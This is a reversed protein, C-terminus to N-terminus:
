TAPPTGTSRRYRSGAVARFGPAMRSPVPSPSTKRAPRMGIRFVSRLHDARVLFARLFWSQEDTEFPLNTQDDAQNKKDDVRQDGQDGVTLRVVLEIILLQVEQVLLLAHNRPQQLAVIFLQRAKSTEDWQEVTSLAPDLAGRLQLRDQSAVARHQAQLPPDPRKRKKIGIAHQM